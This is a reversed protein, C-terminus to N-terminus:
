RWVIKIPDTPAYAKHFRKKNALCDANTIVIYTAYLHTLLDLTIFGIYGQRPRHKVRVFNDEAVGLLKRWLARDMNQFMSFALM